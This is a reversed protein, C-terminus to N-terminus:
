VGVELVGLNLVGETERSDFVIGLSGTLSRLIEKEEASICGGVYRDFEGTSLQIRKFEIFLVRLFSPILLNVRRPTGSGLSLVMISNMLSVTDAITAGDDDTTAAFGENARMEKQTSIPAISAAYKM